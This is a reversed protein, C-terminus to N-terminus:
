VRNDHCGCTLGARQGAVCWYECEPQRGECMGKWSKGVNLRASKACMRSFTTSPTSATRPMVRPGSVLTLHDPGTASQATPMAFVSASRKLLLKALGFDLTRAAERDTVFINASKTGRHIPGESHASDFGHAIKTTPDLIVGTSRPKGQIRHRRTEGELFERSILPRHEHEEIDYIACIHPHNTASAAKAARDCTDQSQHDRSLEEPLFTLAVTRRFGTDEAKCVVGRGSGALKKITRYSLVTEGVMSFGEVPSECVAIFGCCKEVM